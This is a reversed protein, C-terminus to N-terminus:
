QYFIKFLLEKLLDGDSARSNNVGKSKMDLERLYAMIRAIKRVDFFRLGALYDKAQWPSVGGEKALLSEAVGAAKAQAM